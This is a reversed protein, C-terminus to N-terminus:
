GPTTTNRGQEIAKDIEQKAGLIGAMDVQLQLNSERLEAIEELLAEIELQNAQYDIYDSSEKILYEHSNIEGYKPIIFFLNNYINFFDEVTALNPDFFTLDQENVGLQTFDTNFTSNFAERSYGTRILTVSTNENTSSDLQTENTNNYSQSNDEM